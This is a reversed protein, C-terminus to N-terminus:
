GGIRAKNIGVVRVASAVISPLRRLAELREPDAVHMYRASTALQAHGLQRQVIMGDTGTQRLWTAHTHRLDHWRFDELGAMEVAADFLKRQNRKDFVLPDGDRREVRALVDLENETLWVIHQRGGKATVEAYGRDMYVRSWTLGYTEFERCGTYLSWEIAISIHPQASAVLRQAEELTIWRVRKSEPNMFDAWDIIQIPQKLKKRAYNHARRWVALARNIAYNGGGESVRSQVFDNVEADTLASVTLGDDIRLRIETLYRDVESAWAPSLKPSCQEWYKQFAQGITLSTAPPAKQQRAERKLRREEAKAERETTAKTSGFFRRRNVRFDYVYFPSGKRRYVAM